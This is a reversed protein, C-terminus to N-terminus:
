KIEFIVEGSNVKAGLRACYLCGGWRVKMSADDSEITEVEFDLQAGQAKVTLKEGSEDRLTLEEGNWEPKQATLLNWVVPAERGIDFSDKVTIVGAAKDISVSRDFAKIEGYNEYANKISMSLTSQKEEKNYTVNDSRYGESKPTGMPTNAQHGGDITPVNHYQSQNTWLTYRKDSFTLASYVLPGSDVIFRVGNKYVIFNGVDNHNHSEGNHGAKAGLFIEGNTSQTRVTMVGLDPLYHESVQLSNGKHNLYEDFYERNGFFRYMNMEGLVKNQGSKKGWESAFDCVEPIGLIKGCRYVFLAGHDLVPSGDAFNVFYKGGAHVKLLFQVMNRVKQTKFCDAFLGNTAKNLLEIAEVVNGHSHFWYSPGENCGGEEGQNDIYQDMCIISKLLIKRFLDMDDVFVLAGVLANRWNWIGINNPKKDGFGMWWYDDRNLMEMLVKEIVTEKMRKTIMKSIEDLKEGVAQYVFAMDTMRQTSCITISWRNYDPLGDAITAVSKNHAPYCWTSEELIMWVLDMIDDMLAGDNRCCEIITALLLENGRRNSADQYRTRNGTRQYDLYLSATLQVRPTSVVQEYREVIEDLHKKSFDDWYERDSIPHFLGRDPNIKYFNISNLFEKLM